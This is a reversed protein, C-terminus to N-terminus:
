PEPKWKYVPRIEVAGVRAEPIRVAAAVAQDMSECEILYYGTLHEQQKRVLGDEVRRKGNRIRVTRTSAAKRLVNSSVYANERCLDKYLERHERDFKAHEDSGEAPESEDERYILLLFEM